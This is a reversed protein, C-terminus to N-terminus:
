KVFGNIVIKINATSRAFVYGSSPQEFNQYPPIIVGIDDESPATNSDQIFLELNVNSANQYVEGHDTISTWTKGVEKYTTAM